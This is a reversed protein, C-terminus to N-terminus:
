MRNIFPVDSVSFLHEFGTLPLVVATCGIKEAYRVTNYTGGRRGDYVAILLSSRDVMYRNRAMMCGSNYTDSLVTTFDCANVLRRYRDQMASPWKREQGLFPIAAELIIDPHESRMALVTEACLTDIGTAMGSLFRRYGTEYATRILDDLALKLTRCQPDDENYKWPLKEARHGSFCCTNEKTYVNM